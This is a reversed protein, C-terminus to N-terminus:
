IVRGMDVADQTNLRCARAALRDEREFEKRALARNKLDKAQREAASLIWECGSNGELAHWGSHGEEHKCRNDSVLDPHTAACQTHTKNDM